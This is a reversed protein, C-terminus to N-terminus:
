LEVDPAGKEGPQIADSDILTIVLQPMDPASFGVCEALKVKLICGTNFLHEAAGIGRAMGILAPALHLRQQLLDQGLKGIGLAFDDDEPINFSHGIGLHGCYQLTRFLGRTQFDEAGPVLQFVNEIFFQFNCISSQRQSSPSM